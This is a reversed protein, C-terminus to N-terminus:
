TGCHTELCFHKHSTPPSRSKVGYISATTLSCYFSNEVASHAPLDYNAKTFCVFDSENSQKVCVPCDSQHVLEDDDHSHQATIVQAGFFVSCLILVSFLRSLCSKKQGQEQAFKITM